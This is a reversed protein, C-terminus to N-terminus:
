NPCPECKGANAIDELNCVTCTKRTPDPVKGPPCAECEGAKTIENPNCAICVTKNTEHPVKGNSCPECKGANAIKDVDCSICSQRATDLVNGIPCATCNGDQLIEGPQCGTFM